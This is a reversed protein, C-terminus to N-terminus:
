EPGGTPLEAHLVWRSQEPGARFTGGFLAVREAIGTLGHGPDTPATAGLPSTADITLREGTRRLQLRVPGPGGHRQANTLAEAAIRYATTSVLRPLSGAAPEVVLDMGASRHAEVLVALRSLDPEPARDAEAGRLLGLMGDLEALAQRATDEITALMADTQAPDRTVTHRGATAQVSIVTLAHGIGDHLERALRTHESEARLRALAVVLLDSATPGLLRPVLTAALRGLAWVAVLCAVLAVGALAVGPAGPVWPLGLDSLTAQQGQAAAAALVVMGPVVGVLLVAALLGLLLHGSVLLVTRWRHEVTPREPSVLDGTVGLLSRAATVEIERVGPLLGLLLVPLLCLAVAVVRGVGPGPAIVQALSVLLLGAALGIAAGVMLWATRLVAWRVSM